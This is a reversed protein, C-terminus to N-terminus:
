RIELMINVNCLSINDEMIFVINDSYKIVQISACFVCVFITIPDILFAQICNFKQVIRCFIFNFRNCVQSHVLATAHACM